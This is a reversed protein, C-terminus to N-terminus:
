FLKSLWEKLRQLGNEMRRNAIASQIRNFREQSYDRCSRTLPNYPGTKNLDEVLMRLAIADEEPSMRFTEVVVRTPDSDPYVIGAGAKGLGPQVGSAESVGQSPLDRSIMGFSQGYPGNPTDISVRQHLGGVQNTTELRLDLGSFDTWNTPNNLVYAYLNVGSSEGIPDRSLWRGLSPNYARYMTLYLGSRAHYYHGTLAFDPFLCAEQSQM